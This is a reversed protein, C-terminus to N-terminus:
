VVIDKIGPQEPLPIPADRPREPVMTSRWRELRTRHHGSVVILHNGLPAELLDSAMATDLRVEIQTRCLSPDSGTRLIEGEAVWLKEMGAGGIRLLTVPGTSFHGEIGVGLGSEFHSRLSFSEVLSLPVTCHALWITNTDVDLRAPNAMWPLIGLLKDVWIMGVTSVLDGECGAIVKDDNLQSLAVCGSTGLAFLVDFCRVAIADLDQDEVVARLAATFQAADHIRDADAEVIQDASDILEQALHTVDKGGRYQEYVTELDVPVIRPGWMRRVIDPDPSSAVLWDSPKGVMGIRVERLTRRAELDDIAQQLLRLGDHDDAGHLYIIRGTAGLQHLRALAELSAPLSNHGPHALLFLPEGPLADNRHEWLDLITQETGGTVVFVILPRTTGVTDLDCREGGIRELPSVYDTILRTLAEEDHLTSALPVYAFGAAM